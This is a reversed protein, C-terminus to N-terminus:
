SRVSIPSRGRVFAKLLEELIKDTITDGATECEKVRHALVKRSDNDTEQTIEVLYTAAKVTVEAQKIFLPFFRKEKVVFLQLFKDLKM